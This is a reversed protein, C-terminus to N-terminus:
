LAYNYEILKCDHLDMNGNSGQEEELDHRREMLIGRRRVQARNEDFWGLRIVRIGVILAVKNGLVSTSQRTQHEIFRGGLGVNREGVIQLNHRGIGPVRHNSQEAASCPIFRHAKTLCLCALRCHVGLHFVVKQVCQTAVTTGVVQTSTAKELVSSVSHHRRGKGHIIGLACLNSSCHSKGKGDNL